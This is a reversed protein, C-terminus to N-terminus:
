FSSLSSLGESLSHNGSSGGSKKTPKTYSVAIKDPTVMRNADIGQVGGGRRGISTEPPIELTTRELRVCVRLSWVHLSRWACAM